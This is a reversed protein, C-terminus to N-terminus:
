RRFCGLHPSQEPPAGFYKELAFHVSSFALEGYPIEKQSFLRTELSEPGPSFDPTRLRAAFIMHVQGIHPISYVTQLYLLEAQANAEERTERLAGEEVIEGNELFGGPVTWLGRRPEIARRCLLM